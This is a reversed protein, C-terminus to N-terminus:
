KILDPFATQFEQSATRLENLIPQEENKRARLQNLLAERQGGTTGDMQKVLRASETRFVDYKKKATKYQQLAQAETESLPTDGIVKDLSSISIRLIGDSPGAAGGGGSTYPVTVSKLKMVSVTTEELAKKEQHSFKSMRYGTLRVEETKKNKYTLVVKRPPDMALEKVTSRPKKLYDGDSTAFMFRNKEFGQFTGKYEKKGAVLLDARTTSALLLTIAISYLLRMATRVPNMKAENTYVHSNASFNTLIQTLPFNKRFFPHIITTHLGGPFALHPLRRLPPVPV